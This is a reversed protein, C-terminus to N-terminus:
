MHIDLRATAETAEVALIPLPSDQQARNGSVSVPPTSQSPRSGQQFDSSGGSTHDQVTISAAPLHQESLRHQLSPLEAALARGLEGREVSIEATFQNRVLSTRIDVNGFEGTRLGMRLESREIGAVLKATHLQSGTSLAAAEVAAEADEGAATSPIHPLADLTKPSAIVSGTQSNVVPSSIQTSVGSGPAVAASNGNGAQSAGPSIAKGLQNAENSVGDVDGSLTDTFARTAAKEQKATSSGNLAHSQLSERKTESNSSPLLAPKAVTTAPPTSSAADHSQLFTFGTQTKTDLASPTSRVTDASATKTGPIAPKGNPMASSDLNAAPAMLTGERAVWTSLLNTSSVAAQQNDAPNSSDTKESELQTCVIAGTDPPFTSADSISKPAAITGAATRSDTFAFQFQLAQTPASDPQITRLSDSQGDSGETQSEEQWAFPLTMSIATQKSQHATSNVILATQTSTPGSQYGSPKANSKDSKASMKKPVHSGGDNLVDPTSPDSSDKVDALVTSFKGSATGTDPLFTKAPMAHAVPKSLSVNV